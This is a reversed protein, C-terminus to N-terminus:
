RALKENCYRLKKGHAKVWIESAYELIPRVLVEWLHVCTTVPLLRCVGFGMMTYARKKAKALITEKHLKWSLDVDFWVGLYKYEKVVELREGYLLVEPEADKKPFSHGQVEQQLYLELNKRVKRCSFLLAQLERKNNALLAVNDAFVLNGAGM